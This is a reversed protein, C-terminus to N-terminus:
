EQPEEREPVVETLEYFAAHLDNADSSSYKIFTARIDPDKQENTSRVYLITLVKAISQELESNEGPWAVMWMDNIGACNKTRAPMALVGFVPFMYNEEPVCNAKVFEVNVNLYPDVPINATPTKCGLLSLVVTSLLITKIHM